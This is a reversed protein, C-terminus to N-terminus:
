SGTRGPNGLDRYHARRAARARREVARPAEPDRAARSGDRRVGVSRAFDSAHLDLHDVVHRSRDWEDANV